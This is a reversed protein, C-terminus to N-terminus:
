QNNGDHHAVDIILAQDKITVKQVEYNICMDIHNCDQLGVKM